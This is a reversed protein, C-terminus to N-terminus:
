VHARGIQSAKWSVGNEVGAQLLTKQNTNLVLIISELKVSLKSDKICGRSVSYKVHAWARKTLAANLKCSRM